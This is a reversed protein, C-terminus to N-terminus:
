KEMDWLLCNKCNEEVNKPNNCSKCRAEPNLRDPQSLFMDIFQRKYEEFDEAHSAGLAYMVYERMSLDELDM